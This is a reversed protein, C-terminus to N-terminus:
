KHVREMIIEDPMLVRGCIMSAGVALHVSRTTIWMGGCGYGGGYSFGDVDPLTHCLMDHVEHKEINIILKLIANAYTLKTETIM